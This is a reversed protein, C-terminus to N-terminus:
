QPINAIASFAAIWADVGTGSSYGVIRGVETTNFVCKGNSTCYGGTVKIIVVTPFGQVNYQTLLHANQAQIAPTQTTNQPFDVLLPVIEHSNFWILFSKDQFVETELAQCHPCWDSGSFLAMVLHAGSADGGTKAAAQELAAQYDQLWNIPATLKKIAELVSQSVKVLKQGTGVKVSSITGLITHSPM